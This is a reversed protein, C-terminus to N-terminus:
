GHERMERSLVAIRYEMMERVSMGAPPFPYEEQSMGRTAKEIFDYCWQVREKIEESDITGNFLRFEVTGHKVYAPLINLWMYRNDNENIWFSSSYSKNFKQCYRNVRADGPKWRDLAADENAIGYEAIAKLEDRSVSIHVHLSCMYEASSEIHPHRNKLWGLAMPLSLDNKFFTLPRPPHCILECTKLRVNEEHAIECIECLKEVVVEKARISSDNHWIFSCRLEDPLRPKENELGTIEIEIGILRDKMLM